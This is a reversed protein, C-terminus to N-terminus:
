RHRNYLYEEVLYTYSDFFQQANFEYKLKYARIYGIYIIM